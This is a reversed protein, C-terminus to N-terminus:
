RPMSPVLGLGFVQEQRVPTFLGTNLMFNNSDKPFDIILQTRPRCLGLVYWQDRQIHNYDELM